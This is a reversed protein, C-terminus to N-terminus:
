IDNLDDHKLPNVLNNLRETNSMELSDRGGDDSTSPSADSSLFSRALFIFFFLLLNQTSM